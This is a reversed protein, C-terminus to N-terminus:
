LRGAPVASVEDGQGGAAQRPRPRSPGGPGDALAPRGYVCPAAAAPHAGNDPAGGAGPDPTPAWEYQPSEEPCLTIDLHENQESFVVEFFGGLTTRCWQKNQVSAAASKGLVWYVDIADDLYDKTRAALQETTISALQIEVALQHGQAFTVLIDAIRKRAHIPVELEIQAGKYAPPQALYRSMHYKGLLHEASEAHGEYPLGCARCHAFHPRKIFGQRVIMREDCLQCVLQAADLQRRPNTLRTIDIREHTTADRAVFPM